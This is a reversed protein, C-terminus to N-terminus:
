VLPDLAIQQTLPVPCSMTLGPNTIITATGSVAQEAASLQANTVNQIRHGNNDAGGVWIIIGAGAAASDEVVGYRKVPQIKGDARKVTDIYFVTGKPLTSFLASEVAVTVPNAQTGNGQATNAGNFRAYAGPYAVAANNGNSVWSYGGSKVTRVTGPCTQGPPPPPPPPVTGTSVCGSEFASGAVVGSIVPKGPDPDVIIQASNSTISSAAADVSPNQPNGGVWIDVHRKGNSWDTICQACTDLMVFYKNLIKTQGADNVVSGIYIKTGKPLWRPDSAVVYPNEYSGDGFAAGWCGKNNPQSPHQADFYAIAYGPSVPGSQDNDGYGYGTLYLTFNTEAM